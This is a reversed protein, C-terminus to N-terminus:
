LGGGDPLSRGAGDLALVALLGGADAANKWEGLLYAFQQRVQPDEDDELHLWDLSPRDWTALHPEMLKIAQKRVGAHKDQVAIAVYEPHLEGMGDLTWLAHARALPNDSDRFLKELHVVAAYDKKQVLLRQATDRTWGNPSAL